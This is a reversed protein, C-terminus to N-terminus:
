SNFHPPVRVCVHCRSSTMEQGCYIWDALWCWRIRGCTGSSGCCCWSGGGWIFDSDAQSKQHLGQIMVNTQMLDVPDQLLHRNWSADAVFDIECNQSTVNWFYCLFAHHEAGGFSLFRLLCPHFWFLIQSSKRKLIYYLFLLWLFAIPRLGWSKGTYGSRGSTWTLTIHEKLM